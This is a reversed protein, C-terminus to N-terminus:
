SRTIPPRLDPAATIGGAVQGPPPRYSGAGAFSTPSSGPILFVVTSMCPLMCSHCPAEKAQESGEGDICCNAIQADAHQFHLVHTLHGVHAPHSQRQLDPIFVFAAVLITAFFTLWLRFDYDRIMESQYARDAHGDLSIAPWPVCLITIEVGSVKAQRGEDLDPLDHNIPSFARLRIQKSRRIAERFRQQRFASCEESPAHCTPWILLAQRM